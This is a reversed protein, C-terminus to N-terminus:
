SVAGSVTAMRCAGRRAAPRCFVESADGSPEALAWPLSAPFERLAVLSERVAACVLVGDGAQPPRHGAADASM